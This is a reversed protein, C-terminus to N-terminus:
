LPRDLIDTISISTNNCKVDEQASEDKLNEFTDNIYSEITKYQTKFEAKISSIISEDNIEFIVDEFDKEIEDFISNLNNPSLEDLSEILNQSDIYDSYDINEFYFDFEELLKASCYNSMIASYSNNEKMFSVIPAMLSVIDYFNSNYLLREINYPNLFFDNINYFTMLKPNGIIKKILGSKSFGYRGIRVYEEMTFLFEINLQGENCYIDNEVITNFEVNFILGKKITNYEMLKNELLLKKLVNKFDKTPYLKEIQDLYTANSQLKILLYKNNYIVSNMYDNISPNLVGIKKVGNVDVIRVMSHNLRQLTNNFNNLTSDFTVEESIYYNFCSELIESSVFTDTLSYLIYMFIRDIDEIRQEFENKWIDKPNDLNNMVFKFYENGPVDKIKNPLAIYEIIRPNFNKHQVIKFYKHDDRLCQYHKNSVNSKKLIKYFIKAKEIDSVKNIDIKKLTIKEMGFFRELEQSSNRAENLITVRTNLILAKNPYLGIHKILSLLEDDHGEQMKFYHQGLCDDLFIIEKSDRNSTIAKKLETINGNSSYRVRYGKKIFNLLLMKSNLTKGVGPDGYLLVIREKSLIELCSNFVVTQEFYKIDNHIDSILVESDIFVNQNLYDKLVIDTTVWLKFQGRLIDINKEDGLFTDIDEKTIISRESTMYSEFISYIETVQMPNLSQSTFIYYDKPKHKEVKILENQLASKFTSFSSKMFHKVQVLVNLESLDDTLDIGGDKGRPFVRLNKNLKKGMIDQCLKEFDLSDLLSYDFM